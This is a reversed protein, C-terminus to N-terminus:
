CCRKIIKKGKALLFGFSRALEKTQIVEEWNNNSLIEKWKVDIVSKIQHVSIRVRKNGLYIRNGAVETITSEKTAYGKEEIALAIKQIILMEVKPFFAPLCRDDPFAKNALEEGLKSELHAKRMNKYVKVEKEELLKAIDNAEPLVDYFCPRIYFSIIKYHKKGSQNLHKRANEILSRPVEDESLKKIFGFLRMLVTSSEIYNLHTPMTESTKRMTEEQSMYYIPYKKNNWTYTWEEAISCRGAHLNFVELLQIRTKSFYKGILPYKEQIIGKKLEYIFRLNLQLTQLTEIELETTTVDIGCKLALQKISDIYSTSPNEKRYIDIIDKSGCRFCNIISDGNTKQFVKASPKRDPRHFYCSHNKNKSLDANNLFLRLDITKIYEKAEILSMTTKHIAVSVTNKFSFPKEDISENLYKIPKNSRERDVVNRRELLSDEEICLGYKVAIEEASGYRVSSRQLTEVIYPEKKMNAFGPFRMPRSLNSVKIDGDFKRALARQIRKFQSVDTLPQQYYFYVHLGNASDIIEEDKLTGKNDNWWKEKLNQVENSTRHITLRWKSDHKNKNVLVEEIESMQEYYKVKDIVESENDVLIEAYVKLDIEFWQANVQTIQEDTDGGVNPLFYVAYGDTFNMNSLNFKQQKDGYNSYAHLNRIDDTQLSNILEKKSIFTKYTSFKKRGKTAYKRTQQIELNEPVLRIRILDDDTQNKYLDEIKNRLQESREAFNYIKQKVWQKDLKQYFNIETQKM